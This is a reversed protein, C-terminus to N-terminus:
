VLRMLEPFSDIVHDPDAACLQNKTHIGYSVGCTSMGAAKGAAIDFISDGVFMASRAPIGTKELIFNAIDPAPKNNAVDQEGAITAFNGTIGLKDTLSILSNRERNSAITMTVGQAKLDALTEAVGPYLALNSDCNEPFRARYFRVAEAIQSDDLGPCAKEFIEALPLGINSKLQQRGPMEQGLHALTQSITQLIAAGTDALTGDFDFILLKLPSARNNACLKIM